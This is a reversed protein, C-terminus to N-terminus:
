AGFTKPRVTRKINKFRHCNPSESQMEESTGELPESSSACSTTSELDSHRRSVSDTNPSAAEILLIPNVKHKDGLIDHLEDYYKPLKLKGEGTRKQSDCYKIYSAQLNCFKQKIKMPKKTGLSQM